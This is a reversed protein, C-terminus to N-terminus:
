DGSRWLVEQTKHFIEKIVPEVSMFKKIMFCTMDRRLTKFFKLNTVSRNRIQDLSSKEVALPPKSWTSNAVGTQHLSEMLLDGSESPDHPIAESYQLLTTSPQQPPGVGLSGNVIFDTNGEGDEEDFCLSSSM